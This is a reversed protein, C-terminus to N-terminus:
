KKLVVHPCADDYSRLTALFDDDFPVRDNGLLLAYPEFGCRLYTEILETVVTEHDEFHKNHVELFAWCPPDVADLLDTMGRTVEVEYGEIDMRFADITDLGQREVFADLTTTEVDITEQTRREMKESVYESAVGESEWDLLTSWNSAETLYMTRAGVSSDVALDYTSVNQADNAAVTRRLHDYNSPVPEIAHVHGTEGVQDAAMLAYYGFNSGVDVVTMREELVDRWIAEVGPEHEGYVLLRRSLGPDDLDLLLRRGDFERRVFGDGPRARLLPLSVYERWRHRAVRCSLRATKAPGDERLREHLRGGISAANGLLREVGAVVRVGAQVPKGTEDDTSM